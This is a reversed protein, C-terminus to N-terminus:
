FDGEWSVGISLSKLSVQSMIHLDCGKVLFSFEPITFDCESCKLSFSLQNEEESGSPLNWGFKPCIM